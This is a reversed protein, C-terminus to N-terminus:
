THENWGCNKGEQCMKNILDKYITEMEIANEGITKVPRIERSMRKVESPNAIFYRIKEFLDKADGVEFILGTKGDQVMEPLGGINSAIVPTKTAFAERITLPSNEMCVSPIILIDINSFVKQVEEHKFEGKLKINENKILKMYKRRDEGLPGHIDLTANEIHNFAEILVQIGKSPAILGIFAFRLQKSPTKQIHESVTGTIGLDLCAMKDEPVGREVLKDYLPHSPTIIIDIKEIIEQIAKPRIYSVYLITHLLTLPNLVIKILNKPLEIYTKPQSLKIKTFRYIRSSWLCKICKSKNNITMCANLNNDILHAKPCLLWYDHTTFVMPIKAQYAINVLNTSLNILHQFHIIDPKFEEILTKFAKDVRKNTCTFYGGPKLLNLYTFHGAYQLPNISMFALDDYYGRKIFEGIDIGSDSFFLCVDNRNNLEKCLSYTYIETGGVCKPLFVHVVQLIKM